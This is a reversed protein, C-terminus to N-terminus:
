IRFVFADIQENEVAAAMRTIAIHSADKAKPFYKDNHCEMIPYSSSTLGGYVVRLDDSLAVASWITGTNDTGPYIFWNYTFTNKRADFKFGVPEYIGNTRRSALVVFQTGDSTTSFDIAAGDYLPPFIIPPLPVYNNGVKQYAVGWPSGNYLEIFYPTNPLFFMSASYNTSVVSSITLVYNSGNWRYLITYPSQQYNVFIDNGDESTACSNTERTPLSAPNPLKTFTVGSRKYIHIYPSAVSALSLTEGLYDTSVSNIVSSPLISITPIKTWTDGDINYIEVNNSSVHFYWKKDGSLASKSEGGVPMVPLDPLQIYEDDIIRFRVFLKGGWGSSTRKSALLTTNNQFHMGKPNINAHTGLQRANDGYPRVLLKNKATVIGVRVQKAEAGDIMSVGTLTGVRGFIDVGEKINAAVLDADGKITQKGSLYQDAAIEQDIIGPIITAASKSPITGTILQGKVVAKKGALINGATADGASTDVVNQSLTQSVKGSGNHYGAPITYSGNMTLQQNIAGHNPMSGTKLNKDNSYFKKGALVEGVAADGLYKASTGGGKFVTSM